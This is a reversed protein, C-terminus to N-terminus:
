AAAPAPATKRRLLASRRAGRRRRRSRHVAVDLHCRRVGIRAPRRPLVRDHRPPARLRLPLARVDRGSLPAERLRRPPACLVLTGARRTSSRRTSRSTSRSASTRARAAPDTFTIAWPLTASAAGAAARSRPLRRPRHGPRARRVPAAIDAFTWFRIERKRLLVVAARRRAGILGGYFVGGARALFEVFGSWSSVYHPWKSSSSCSSRASSARCFFGSRRRRVAADPAVGFAPARRRLLWLAALFGCRWCSATADPARVLRHPATRPADPRLGRRRTSAAREPRRWIDWALLVVGVTIASDAVNFSPWEWRGVYFRLFDTVSEFRIRDILNGVAGGLILALATQLVRTRRRADTLSWVLVGVFVASRSSRRPDRDARALRAVRLPRVRRRHEERAHPRLLGPHRPITDHLPIRAAVIAKTSRTSSSSPSRSASISSARRTCASSQEGGVVRAAAVRLAAAAGPSSTRAPGALLAPVERRRRPPRLSPRRARGRARGVSYGFVDALKEESLHLLALAEDVAGGRGVVATAQAASGVKGDRASRSSPRCSSRGFRSSADGRREKM